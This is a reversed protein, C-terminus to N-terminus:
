VLEWVKLNGSATSQIVALWYRQELAPVTSDQDPMTITVRENASVLPSQAAVNVGAAGIVPLIFCDSDPQVLLIKGQLGTANFPAATTANNISTSYAITGLYVPTGSYRVASEHISRATRRAM